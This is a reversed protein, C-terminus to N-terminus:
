KTATAVKKPNHHDSTSYHDVLTQIKTRQRMDHAFLGYDNLGDKDLLRTVTHIHDVSVDDYEVLLVNPIYIRYYVRERLRSFAFFGEQLHPEIRKWVEDAFPSALNFIYERALEQVFEMKADSLKRLPLGEDDFVALDFNRGQDLHGRGSGVMVDSRVLGAVTALTREDETLEAFLKRGLQIENELPTEGGVTLPQSGLFLPALILDNGHVLFNLAIHHGDFQLGWASDIRPDGFVALTYDDVTGAGSAREIDTALLKVKAIGTDSLLSSLVNWALDLSVESLNGLRVGGSRRGPLNTWSYMEQDGICYSITSDEDQAVSERLEAVVDALRSLDARDSKPELTFQSLDCDLSTSSPSPGVLDEDEDHAFAVTSVFFLAVAVLLCRRLSLCIGLSFM